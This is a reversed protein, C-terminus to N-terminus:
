LLSALSDLNVWAKAYERMKLDWGLGGDRFLAEVDFRSRMLSAVKLRSPECGVFLLIQSAVVLSQLSREVLTLDNRDCVAGPQTM